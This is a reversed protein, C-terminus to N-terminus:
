RTPSERRENIARGALVSTTFRHLEDSRDIRAELHDLGVELMRVREALTGTQEPVEGRREFARVFRWTFYGAAGIVVYPMGDTLLYGLLGIDVNM